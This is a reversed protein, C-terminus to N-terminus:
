FRKKALAAQEIKQQKKMDDQLKNRKEFYLMNNIRREYTKESFEQMRQHIAQEKASKQALIKKYYADIDFDLIAEKDILGKAM